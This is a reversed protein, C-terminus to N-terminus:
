PVFVFDIKGYGTGFSRPSTEARYGAAGTLRLQQSVKLGLTPGVFFGWSTAGSNGGGLVGAEAGVSVPSNVDGIRQAGRVRTWLFNNAFNWSGIAQATHEGTGWYDAQATAFVGNKSQAPIPFTGVAVPANASSSVWAYGVSGQVAGVTSQNKLGLSAAFVNNSATSGGGAPYNLHYVQAGAVPQIGVGGPSLSAGLLFLSSGAGGAEASGYGVVQQAAAPVVGCVVSAALVLTGLSLRNM